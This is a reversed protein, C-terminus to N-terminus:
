YPGSSLGSRSLSEHLNAALYSVIPKITGDKMFQAQMAVKLADMVFPAMDQQFWGTQLVFLLRRVLSLKAIRQWVNFRKFRSTQLIMTFHELYVQQIEKRTRSWLEFDLAIARYALSNLVTSQRAEAHPPHSTMFHHLVYEPSRFNLGLFEFLTEFGSINIM